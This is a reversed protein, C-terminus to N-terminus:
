DTKKLAAVHEGFLRPPLRFREVLQSGRFDQFDVTLDDWVHLVQTLDNGRWEFVIGGNPDPVVSDPPQTIGDDRTWETLKSALRIVEDSPPTVGDDAIPNRGLDALKDLYDDWTM